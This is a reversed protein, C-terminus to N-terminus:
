KTADEESEKPATGGDVLKFTVRRNRSSNGDIGPIPESSGVGKTNIRKAPFGLKVLSDKVSEARKNSYFINGLKGGEKDEPGTTDAHGVVELKVSEPLKDVADKIVSGSEKIWKVFDKRNPIEWKKYEFGEITKGDPYRVDKLKENLENLLATYGSGILEKMPEKEPEKIETTRDTTTEKPKETEAPKEVPPEDKKDPSSCFGVSAAFFVAVMLHLLSKFKM